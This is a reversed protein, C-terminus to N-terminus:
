HAHTVPTVTSSAAAPAAATAATATSTAAAVSAAHAAAAARAQERKWAALVDRDYWHGDQKILMVTTDMPKGLVQYHVAVRATNGDSDILRTTVSDFVKDLSFGYVALMAKLGNWAVGYRKMAAGYDLAYAQELSKLDLKRATGVLIDIAQQAKDADGWPARQAWQGVAAVIDRAQGRQAVSLDRAHDLQTDIVTSAIGIMTPLQAKYTSQYKTLLPKVDTMLRKEAGAATLTQMMVAFRARNVLNINADGPDGDKWGQRLERYEAAPLLNHMLGDFDGAELLRATSKVAAEPTANGPVPAVKHGCGALVAVASLLMVASLSRTLRMLFTGLLDFVPLTSDGGAASLHPM